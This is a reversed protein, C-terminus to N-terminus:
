LRDGHPRHDLNWRVLAVDNTDEFVYALKLSEVHADCFAVNVKGSHRSTARGNRDVLTLPQRMFFIGGGFSEGIAMMDDPHEVEAEKVPAYLQSSSIFRGHLGLANTHNGVRLVGFANYAYASPAFDLDSPWRAAPCRWVGKTFFDRKPKSIDFGGRELQDFWLGPNDTNTGTVM